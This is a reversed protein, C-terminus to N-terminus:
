SRKFIMFALDMKYIAPCRKAYMKEIIKQTEKASYGTDLYGMADNIQALKFLKIYVLQAVGILVPDKKVESIIEYQAYLLYKQPNHLRITSFCPCLLKQNWNRSFKLTKLNSEM